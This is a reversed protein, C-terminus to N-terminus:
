SELLKAVGPALEHADSVLATLTGIRVIIKWYWDVAESDKEAEFIGRNLYVAGTATKIAEQLGDSGHLKYNIIARRIIELHELLIERLKPDITTGDLVRDILAEVDERLSQLEDQGLVRENSHKSLEDACHELSLMTAEDLRNKFSKWQDSQRVTAFAGQISPLQKLYLDQNLGDINEISRKVDMLLRIMEGQKELIQSTSNMDIGFVQGWVERVKMGDGKKRAEDLIHWLRGAPNDKKVV